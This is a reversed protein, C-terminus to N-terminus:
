TTVWPHFSIDALSKPGRMSAGLLYCFTLAVLKGQLFDSAIDAGVHSSLTGAVWHQPALAVRCRTNVLVPDTSAMAVVM